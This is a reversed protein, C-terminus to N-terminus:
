CTNVICEGTLECGRARAWVFEVGSIVDYLGGDRRSYIHSCGVGDKMIKAASM